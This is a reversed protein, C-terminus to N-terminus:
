CGCALHMWCRDRSHRRSGRAGAARPRPEDPLDLPVRDQVVISPSATMAIVAALRAFPEERQDLLDVLVMVGDLDDGLVAIGDEDGSLVVGGEALAGVQQTRRGVGTPQELSVLVGQVAEVHGLM